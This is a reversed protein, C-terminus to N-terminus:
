LSDLLPQRTSQEEEAKHTIDRYLWFHQIMFIVDFFVSINSLGFKAPNGTIGSWDGQFSADIFLQGLSLIGGAFDFLVQGISWGETSKQTYNFHAQPIYKLLTALLKIYGFIYIVDVWTWLNSDYQIKTENTAARFIFVIVTTISGVIVFRTVNNTQKGKSVEFGWLRTWFQSYTVLVLVLAHAAFAFDNFRVTPIPANPHRAAYQARIQPSYLFCSTSITYSIFGLVNLAPYDKTLGQTSKRRWNLLPQPYFSASWCFVSFQNTISRKNHSDSSVIDMGATQSLILISRSMIICLMRLYVAVLPGM